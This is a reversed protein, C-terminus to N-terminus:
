LLLALMSVFGHLLSNVLDINNNTLLYLHEVEM